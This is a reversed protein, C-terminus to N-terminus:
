QRGNNLGHSPTPLLPRLYYGPGSGYDFLHETCLASCPSRDLGVLVLLLLPLRLGSWQYLWIYSTFYSSVLRNGFLKATLIM